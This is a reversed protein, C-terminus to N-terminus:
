PKNAIGLLALQEANLNLDAILKERAEREETFKRAQERAYLADRRGMEWYDYKSALAREQHKLDLRSRPNRPLVSCLIDDESWGSMSGFEGCLKRLTAFTECISASLLKIEARRAELEGWTTPNKRRTLPTTNM